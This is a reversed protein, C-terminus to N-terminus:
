RFIKAWLVLLISAALCGGVGYAIAKNATVRRSMTALTRRATALSDDAGHLADRAHTIVERQRHLDTLISAGLEQVPPSPPRVLFVFPTFKPALSRRARPRM